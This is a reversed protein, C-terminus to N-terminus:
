LNGVLNKASQQRKSVIADLLDVLLMLARYDNRTADNWEPFQRLEDALGQITASADSIANLEAPTM